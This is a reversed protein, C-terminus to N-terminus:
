QQALLDQVVVGCPTSDSGGQTKILRIITADYSNFVGLDAMWPLVVRIQGVTGNSYRNGIKPVRGNSRKRKVFLCAFLFGVVSCHPSIKWVQLGSYNFVTTLEQLFFDNQVSM